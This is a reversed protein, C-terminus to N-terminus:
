SPTESWWPCCRTLLENDKFVCVSSYFWNSSKLPRKPGSEADKQRLLIKVRTSVAQLLGEQLLASLQGGEAVSQREVRLGGVREDLGEDGRLVGLTLPLPLWCRAGM